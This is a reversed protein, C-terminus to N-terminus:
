APFYRTFRSAPLSFRSDEVEVRKGRGNEKMQM